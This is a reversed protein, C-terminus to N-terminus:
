IKLRLSLILEFWLVRLIIYYSNLKNKLYKRFILFFHMKYVWRKTDDRDDNDDEMKEFINARFLDM